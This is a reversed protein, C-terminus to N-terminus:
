RGRVERLIQDMRTGAWMPMSFAPEPRDPRRAVNILGRAALDELTPQSAGPDLPGLQAVAEGGVTVVIREGQGARRAFSALNARLDRIGVTDM